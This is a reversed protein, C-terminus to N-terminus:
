PHPPRPGLRPSDLAPPPKLALNPPFRARLLLNRNWTFRAAQLTDSHIATVAIFAQRCVPMGLVQFKMQFSQSDGTCCKHAEFAVRFMNGLRSERDAKPLSYWLKRWRLVAAPCARFFDLCTHPRHGKSCDKELSQMIRRLDLKTLLRQSKSFQKFRGEQLPRAAIARRGQCAVLSRDLGEERGHEELEVLKVADRWQLAQFVHGDAETLDTQELARAREGVLGGEPDGAGFPDWRLLSAGLGFLNEVFDSPPEIAKGRWAQGEETAEEDSAEGAQPGSHVLLLDDDQAETPQLQEAHDRSIPQLAWFHLNGTNAIIAVPALAQGMVEPCVILQPQPCFVVVQMGFLGSAAWLMPSDVWTREVRMATIYNGTNEHGEMQLWQEVTVGPVLQCQSHERLYLLLMIRLAHCARERGDRRLIKTLQQVQKHQLALRELNRLIADLGCNGDALTAEDVLLGNEAAAAYIAADNRRTVPRQGTNVHYDPLHTQPPLRLDWRIAARFNM